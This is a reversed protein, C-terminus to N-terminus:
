TGAVDFLCSLLPKAAAPSAMLRADGEVQGWGWGGGGGHRWGFVEGGGRGPDGFLLGNVVRLVEVEALGQRGARAGAGAAAGAGAEAVRRRAEAALGEILAVHDAHTSSPEHLVSLSVAALEILDAPGLRDVAWGEGMVGVAGAAAGSAAAAPAGADGAAVAGGEGDGAAAPGPPYPDTWRLDFAGAAAAAAAGPAAAVEAAGAGPSGQQGHQRDPLAPRTPGAPGAAQPQGMRFAAHMLRACRLRQARSMASQVRHAAGVRRPDGATARAEAALVDQPCGPSVSSRCLAPRTRSISTLATTHQWERVHPRTFVPCPRWREPWRWVWWEAAM